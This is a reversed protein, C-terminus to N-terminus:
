IKRYLTGGYYLGGGSGDNDEIEVYGNVRMWERIIEWGDDYLWKNLKDSESDSLEDTCYNYYIGIDSEKIDSFGCGEIMEEDMVSFDGCEFVDSLEACVEKISKM